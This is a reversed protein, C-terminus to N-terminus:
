SFWSHVEGDKEKCATGGAFKGAPITDGAVSIFLVTM